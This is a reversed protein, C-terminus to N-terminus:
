VIYTAVLPYLILEVTHDTSVARTRDAPVQLLSPPLLPPITARTAAAALDDVVVLNDYLASRVAAAAAATVASRPSLSSSYFALLM